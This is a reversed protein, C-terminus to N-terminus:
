PEAPVNRISHFATFFGIGFSTNPAIVREYAYKQALVRYRGGRKGFAGDLEFGIGHDGVDGVDTGATFGFIDGGPVEAPRSAAPALSPDAASAPIALGSVLMTALVCSLVPRLCARAPYM